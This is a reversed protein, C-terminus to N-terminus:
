IIIDLRANLIAKYTNMVDLQQELLKRQDYDLDMFKASGIFSSLREVNQQLTDREATVREKVPKSQQYIKERLMYGLYAWIQKEAREYSLREGIDKQFNAPDACASEGTVTFGNQLTIICITLCTQPHVYFDVQKQAAKMDELTIRPAVARAKLESETPANEMIKELFYNNLNNQTVLDM